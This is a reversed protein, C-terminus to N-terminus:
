RKKRLTRYYPLRGRIMHYEFDLIDGDFPSKKFKHDYYLVKLKLIDSPYIIKFNCYYKGSSLPSMSFRDLSLYSGEPFYISNKPIDIEINNEFDKIIIQFTTIEIERFIITKDWIKLLGYNRDIEKKLDYHIKYNLKLMELNLGQYSNIVEDLINIPFDINSIEELVGFYKFLTQVNNKELHCSINKM